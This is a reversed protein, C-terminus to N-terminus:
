QHACAEFHAGHYKAMSFDLARRVNHIFQIDNDLSVQISVYSLCPSSFLYEATHLLPSDELSSISMSYGFQQEAATFCTYTLLTLM